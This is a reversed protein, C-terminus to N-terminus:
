PCSLPHHRRICALLPRAPAAALSERSEVLRTETPKTEKRRRNDSPALGFAVATQWIRKRVAANHDRIEKVKAAITNKDPSFVTKTEIVDDLIEDEQM